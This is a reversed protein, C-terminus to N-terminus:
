PLVNNNFWGIVNGRPWYECVLYQQNWQGCTATACGVSTTGKWVMQTFHGTDEGFQGAAYDYDRNENYWAEMAARDNPFGLAINEGYPGGSHKFICQGPLAVRQLYSQAFNALTQNWVVPGVKHQARVENHYDVINQAYPTLDGSPASPQPKPQPQASSQVPTSQAGPMHVTSTYYITTVRSVWDHVSLLNSAISPESSHESISSVISPVVSTTMSSASSSAPRPQTSIHLLNSSPSPASASPRALDASSGASHSASTVSAGRAGSTHRATSHPPVITLHHSPDLVSLLKSALSSFGIDLHHKDATNFDISTFTGLSIKASSSNAPASSTQALDSPRVTSFSVASFSPQLTNSEIRTTNRVSSAAISGFLSVTASSEALPTSSNPLLQTALSAADSSSRAPGGFSLALATNVLLGTVVSASTLSPMPWSLNQALPLTANFPLTPPAPQSAAANDNGRVSSLPAGTKVPQLGLGSEQTSSDSSAGVAGALSAVTSQMSPFPQSKSESQSHGAALQIAPASQHKQTSISPEVGSTSAGYLESADLVNFGTVFNPESFTLLAQASPEDSSPLPTETLITKASSPAGSGIKPTSLISATKHSSTSYDTGLRGQVPPLTASCAGLDVTKIITHQLSADHYATCLLPYAAASLALFLLRM